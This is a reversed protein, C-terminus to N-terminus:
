KDIRRSEVTFCIFPCTEADFDYVYYWNGGIFKAYPYYIFAPFFIVLSIAISLFEYLCSYIINTILNLFAFFRHVCLSNCVKNERFFSFYKLSFMLPNGFIFIFDYFLYDKWSLDKKYDDFVMKLGSCIFGCWFDRCCSGIEFFHDHDGYVIKKCRQCYENQCNECEKIYINENVEYSWCIPCKVIKKGERQKMKKWDIFSKMKSVDQKNFSTKYCNTELIRIEDEKIVEM